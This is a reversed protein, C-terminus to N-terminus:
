QTRVGQSMKVKNTKAGEVLLELAREFGAASQLACATMMHETAVIAVDLPPPYVDSGISVQAGLSGDANEIMEVRVNFNVVRPASVRAEMREPAPKNGSEISDADFRQM